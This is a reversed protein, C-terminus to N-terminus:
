KIRKRRTGVYSLLFRLVDECDAFERWLVEESSDDFTVREHFHSYCYMRMVYDVTDAGREIVCERKDYSTKGTAEDNRTTIFVVRVADDSSLTDETVCCTFPGEKPACPATRLTVCESALKCTEHSNSGELARMVAETLEFIRLQVSAYALLAESMLARVEPPRTVDNMITRMSEVGNEGRRVCKVYHVFAPPPPSPTSAGSM